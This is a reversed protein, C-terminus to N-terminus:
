PQTVGAEAQATNPCLSPPLGPQPAAPPGLVPVPPEASDTDPWLQTLCSRGVVGSHSSSIPTTQTSVRGTPHAWPWSPHVPAQPLDWPLAPRPSEDSAKAEGARAQVAATLQPHVWLGAGGAEPACCSAGEPPANPPRVSTASPWLPWRFPTWAPPAAPTSAPLGQAHRPLPRDLALGKWSPPALARGWRAGGLTRGTEIGTGKSQCYLRPSASPCESM